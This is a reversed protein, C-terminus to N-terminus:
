LAGNLDGIRAVAEGVDYRAQAHGSTRELGIHARDFFPQLRQPGARNTRKCDAEPNSVRLVDSPEGTM